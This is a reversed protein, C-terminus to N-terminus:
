VLIRSQKYGVLASLTAPTTLAIPVARSTMAHIILSPLMLVLFWRGLNNYMCKYKNYTRIVKYTWIINNYCIFYIVIDYNIIYMYDYSKSVYM